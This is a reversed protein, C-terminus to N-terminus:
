EGAYLMVAWNAAVLAFCLARYFGGGRGPALKVALMYYVATAIANFPLWVLVKLWIGMGPAGLAGLMGYVFLLNLGLTAWFFGPWNRFRRLLDDETTAEQNPLEAM